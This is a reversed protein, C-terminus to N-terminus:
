NGDKKGSEMTPQPDDFVIKTMGEHGHIHLVDDMSKYINLSSHIGEWHLAIQGDDFMVGFAVIGCGSIGSIDRARELHFRRLMHNDKTIERM